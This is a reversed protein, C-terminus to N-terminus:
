SSIIMQFVGQIKSVDVNKCLFDAVKTVDFFVSKSKM